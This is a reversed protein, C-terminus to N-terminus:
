GCRGETNGVLREVLDDAAAGTLEQLGGSATLRYFRCDAGAEAALRRLEGTSLLEFGLRAALPPLLLKREGETRPLWVYWRRCETAWTFALESLRGELRGAPFAADILLVRWQQLRHRRCVCWACGAIILLGVGFWFGLM